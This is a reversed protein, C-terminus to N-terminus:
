YAAYHVREQGRSARWSRTAGNQFNRFDSNWHLYSQISLSMAGESILSMDEAVLVSAPLVNCFNSKEMRIFSIPIRFNM